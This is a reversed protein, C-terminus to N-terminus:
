ARLLQIPDETRVPLLLEQLGLSFPFEVVQLESDQAVRVWDPINSAETDTDGFELFRERVRARCSERAGPCAPEAASRANCPPAAGGWDIRDDEARVWRDWGVELRISDQSSQNAGPPLPYLSQLMTMGADIEIDHLYTTWIPGRLCEEDDRGM